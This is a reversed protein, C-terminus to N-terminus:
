IALVNGACLLAAGTVMAAEVQCCPSAATRAAWVPFHLAATCSGFRLVDAQRRCSGAM